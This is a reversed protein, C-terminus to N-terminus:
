RGRMAMAARSIPTYGSSDMLDPRAGHRLVLASMQDDREAAYSLASRGLRDVHDVAADRHALLAEAALHQTTRLLPTAGSTDPVDPEIGGQALLLEFNEPSNERAAIHLATEGGNRTANIDFGRRELIDRVLDDRRDGYIALMLSTNREENACSLDPAPHKVFLSIDEYRGLGNHPM